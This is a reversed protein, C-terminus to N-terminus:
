PRGGNIPADLCGGLAQICRGTFTWRLDADLNRDWAVPPAGDAPGINQMAAPYGNSNPEFWGKV